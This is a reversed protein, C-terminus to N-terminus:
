DGEASLGRFLSRGLRVLTAGEEVAVEFDGSMGMSLQRLEPGAELDNLQQQLRRLEAFVPRVSEAEDTPPAMTMLGTLGINDSVLEVIRDWESILAQPDFGSRSADGSLNVQLLVEIRDESDTTLQHLRQLLRVSDVSHIVDAHRIALRAKNRQLQGILHWHINPLQPQREALQQPRSEGFISHQDALAEVWNWEAYKTVAVLTVEEPSRGGRECAREIRSHVTALNRQLIDTM